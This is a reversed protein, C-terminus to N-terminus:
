KNGGKFTNLMVDLADTYKTLAEREEENFEKEDQAFSGLLISELMWVTFRSETLEFVMKRSTRQEENVADTEKNVEQSMKSDEKKNTRGLEHGMIREQSM